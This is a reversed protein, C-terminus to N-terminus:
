KTFSKRKNENYLVGRYCTLNQFTNDIKQITDAYDAYNAMADYREKTRICKDDNSYVTVLYRKIIELAFNYTMSEAMEIIEKEKFERKLQNYFVYEKEKEMPEQQESATKYKNRITYKDQYYLKLGEAITLLEKMSDPNNLNLLGLAYNLCEMRSNMIEQKLQFLEQKDNSGITHAIEPFRRLYSQMTYLGEDCFQQLEKIYPIQLSNEIMYNSTPISEIKKM